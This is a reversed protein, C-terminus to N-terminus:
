DEIDFAKRMQACGGRLLQVIKEQDQVPDFETKIPDGSAIQSFALAAAFIKILIFDMYNRDKQRPTCPSAVNDLSFQELPLWYFAPLITLALHPAGLGDSSVWAM